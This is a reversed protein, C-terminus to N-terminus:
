LEDEPSENAGSQGETSESQQGEGMPRRIVKKQVVPQTAMPKRIVRRPITDTGASAAQSGGPPEEPASPPAAPTAPRQRVVPAPAGGGGGGGGSPPRQDQKMLSGCKHCVTATVSNLTGCTPCPKSGMKRMEEEERLWDEFTVFTPQKRWWEQFERDSLARGLQRSAEEKFKLVVEDYQLRMKEQYDAMEVEGTAFEVGCEPCRKVDIPIWAQCNSCKAMDKEFEVGCKPCVTSDEPIFAGCEGCEVMKGLGYFKWYLTVGIVIGAVAALIILFLWWQIGILPVKQLLFPEIKEVTITHTVPFMQGGQVSVEVMYAGNPVDPIAFPLTYLGSSDTMGSVNYDSVPGASNRMRVVVTVGEIGADNVDKVFGTVSITDGPQYKTNNAPDNIVIRGLPPNVTVQFTAYNNNEQQAGGETLNDDPDAWALLTHINAINIAKLTITANFVRGAGITLGSRRGLESGRSGPLSPDLYVAVSINQATTQGLNHIPIVVSFGVGQPQPGVAPIEGAIIALDPQTKVNQIILAANDSYDYDMNRITSNGSEVFVLVNHNGLTTPRWNITLTTTQGNILDFTATNPLAVGNDYVTLVASVAKATGANHVTIRLPVNNDVVADVPQIDATGVSLDPWVFLTLTRSLIDNLENTERIAGGDTVDNLPPDVVVSVPQSTEVAGNPTWVVSATATGMKPVIPVTVRGNPIGAGLEFDVVRFDMTGDLNKDVNDAFFEVVVNRVDIQGNNRITATLILPANIPQLLSDPGNGGSVTLQTPTLDPTLSSFVLSFTVDATVDGSAESDSYYTAGDLWATGNAIYSNDVVRSAGSAFRTEAFARYVVFGSPAVIPWTLDSAYYLDDTGPTPAFGRNLTTPDVRYLTLNVNANALLTGTGDVARITLWWYRSVQANGTIMWSWWTGTPDYLNVSTLQVNQNGGFVLQSTQVQDFTTNRVDLDVTAPNGDDTLFALSTVGVLNADWLRSTEATDLTLAPGLFTGRYLSADTGALNVSSDIESDSITVHSGGDSGLLGPTGRQTLLLRSGGSVTLRATDSVYVSLPYNSRITANILTLSGGSLVKVYACANSQQDVYLGGGLITIAGTIQVSSSVSVVETVTQTSSWTTVSSACSQVFGFTLTLWQNNENWTINPYPNFDAGGVATVTGSLATEQYNGFSEANPLTASTIQDTYLPILAMGNADTQNWQSAGSPARGLYWLTRQNPVTSLGNDPYQATTASPSLRSWITAGSVPDGSTDVAEAHLWRFLYINGGAAPVYAPQYLDYTPPTQSQDITVNYLYANSTADVQLENHRANANSFDVGIYTDYAYLSSGSALTIDQASGTSLEYLREIRSRYMSATTASLAIVPADNSQDIEVPTGFVPGLEGDTFGTITSDTINLSAGASANFWGPFKLMAGNRMVLSSGAGSVSMPLFLYPSIAKTQTTIISNALVLSGGANVNLAYTTHSGDKAFSLGGDTLTLSGGSNINITGDVTYVIGTCVQTTTITWDGTIVGGVQDCTGAQAAPAVAGLVAILGGVAMMWVILLSLAKGNRGARNFM